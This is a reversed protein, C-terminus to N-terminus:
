RWPRAVACCRAPPCCCTRPGVCVAVRGARGCGARSGAASACGGSGFRSAAPDSQRGYAEETLFRRLCQKGRLGREVELFRRAVYEVVQRLQADTFDRAM